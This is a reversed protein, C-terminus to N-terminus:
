AFTKAPPSAIMLMIILKFVRTPDPDAIWFYFIRIRIRIRFLDNRIRLGAKLTRPQVDVGRAQGSSTQSYTRSSTAPFLGRNESGVRGWCLLNYVSPLRDWSGLLWCNKLFYRLFTLCFYDCMIISKYYGPFTLIHLICTHFNETFKVLIKQLNWWSQRFIDYKASSSSELM